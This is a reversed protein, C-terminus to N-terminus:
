INNRWTGNNYNNNGNGFAVRSIYNNSGCAILRNENTPHFDVEYVKQSSSNFASFSAYYTFNPVNYVYVTNNDETGVALYKGQKSFKVTLVNNGFSGIWVPSLTAFSYVTAKDSDSAVAIFQGDPSWDVENIHQGTVETFSNYLCWQITSYIQLSIVLIKLIM